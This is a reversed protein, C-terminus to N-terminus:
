QFLLSALLPHYELHYFDHLAPPLYVLALIVKFLHTQLLRRSDHSKGLLAEIIIVILQPEALLVVKVKPRMQEIPDSHQPGIEFVQLVLVFQVLIFLMWLLELNYILELLNRLQKVVTLLSPVLRHVLLLVTVLICLKLLHLHLRIYQILLLTSSNLVM